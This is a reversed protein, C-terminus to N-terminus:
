HIYMYCVKGHTEINAGGNLCSAARMVDGSVSATVLNDNQM